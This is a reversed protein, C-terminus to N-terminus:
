GERLTLTPTLNSDPNLIDQPQPCNDWNDWCNNEKNGQQYLFELFLVHFRRIRDRVKVNVSCM